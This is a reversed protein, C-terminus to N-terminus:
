EKGTEKPSKQQNKSLQHFINGFGSTKFRSLLFTLSLKILVVIITLMRSALSGIKYLTKSM